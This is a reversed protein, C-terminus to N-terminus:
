ENISFFSETQGCETFNISKQTKKTRTPLHSHTLNKMMFNCGTNQKSLGKM